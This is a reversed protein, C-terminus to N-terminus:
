HLRVAKRVLSEGGHELRVWYVGGAVSRGGEDRGDWRVRHPGAERFEAALTRVRRGSVDLVELRTWGRDPLVFEVLM